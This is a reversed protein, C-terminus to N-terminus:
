IIIQRRQTRGSPIHQRREESVIEFDPVTISTDQLLSVDPGNVAAPGNESPFGRFPSGSGCSNRFARWPESDPLPPVTVFSCETLVHNRM